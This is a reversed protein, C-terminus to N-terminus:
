ALSIVEQSWSLASVHHYQGCGVNDQLIIKILKSTFINVLAIDPMSTMLQLKKLGILIINIFRM